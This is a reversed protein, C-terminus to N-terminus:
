LPQSAADQLMRALQAIDADHLELDGVVITPGRREVVTHSERDVADLVLRDQEAISENVLFQAFEFYSPQHRGWAPRVVSYVAIAMAVASVFISPMWAGTM